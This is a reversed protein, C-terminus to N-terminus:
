RAPELPVLRVLPITRTTAMQYRAYGPMERVIQPWFAAAEEASLEEARVQLARDGVEVRATPTAKLNHYWGPHSPRGGHAAVVVLNLGYHFFTLLVTRERGSKRGRTTLVLVNVRYLKAIGGKTLRYLGVGLSGFTRDLRPELFLDIRDRLSLGETSRRARNRLGEAFGRTSFRESFARLAAATGEGTMPIGHGSALVRPELAALAAISEKAVPLSSTVMPAPGTISQKHLLLGGLTAFNVTLVADGVILVRDSRRFFAVHGPTHGPTPVCEWDPLGPIGASLDFARAADGLNGKSVLWRHLRKPVLRELPDDLPMPSLTAGTVFPLEDPHLHVPLSWTRALERASGAHDPHGHTLLIAAPRANAGFLSEATQRIMQGSIAWATDILTWASGSVVFYVNCGHIPLRYVGAAIERVRGERVASWVPPRRSAAGLIPESAHGAAWHEEAVTTHM